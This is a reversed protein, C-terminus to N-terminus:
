RHLPLLAASWAAEVAALMAPISHATEARALALAALRSRLTPTAALRILAEALAAAARPPVLLAAGALLERTAPLDTAVIPVGAAMAELLFYPSSEFDTTLVAADAAGLLRAADPRAGTLLAPSAPLSGALGGDGVLVFRFRPGGGPAARASAERLAAARVFTAPDKPPALRGAMLVLFDDPAAGFGERIAARDASPLPPPIPVGNPVVVIKGSPALGLRRAREAEFGACVSLVRTRPALAREAALAARRAPGAATPYDHFFGHPSYVVPVPGAALRALTGPKAAHAHVLDFRERRLAGRIRLLAALDSIPQPGRRISLPVVRAGAAALDDCFRPDELPSALAHIEHRGSLGAVLDRVHRAAGGTAARTVLLVKM